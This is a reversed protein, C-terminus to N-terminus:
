KKKRKVGRGGYDEFVEASDPLRMKLFSLVEEQIYEVDERPTFGDDASRAITVMSPPNDISAELLDGVFDKFKSIERDVEERKVIHQHPLSLMEWSDVITKKAARRDEKGALEKRMADRLNDLGDGDGDGDGDDGEGECGAGEEFGVDCLRGIEEKVVRSDHEGLLVMVDRLESSVDDYFPNKVAFYDLCVDLVWAGDCGSVGGCPLSDVNLEFSSEGELDEDERVELLDDIFYKLGGSDVRLRGGVEGVGVLHKGPPIQSCFRQKYWRVEPVHGKFCLPLIWEAIGGLSEDLEDLLKAPTDIISTPLQSPFSLDPHSDFHVLTFTPTAAESGQPEKQTTPSGRNEM